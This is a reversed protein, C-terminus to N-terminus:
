GSVTAAYCFLAVAVREQPDFSVSAAQLEQALSVTDIVLALYRQGGVEIGREDLESSLTAAQDDGQMSECAAEVVAGRVPRQTRANTDRLKAPFQRWRQASGGTQAVDGVLAPDTRTSRAM